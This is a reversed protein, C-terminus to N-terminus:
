AHRASPRMCVCTAFQRLRRLVAAATEPDPFCDEFYKVGEVRGKDPIGTYNTTILVPRFDHLRDDIVAFIAEQARESIKDKGFDEIVLLPANTLRDLFAKAKGAGYADMVEATLRGPRFVLPERDLVNLASYLTRSKGGDPLGYLLLSRRLSAPADEGASALATAWEMARNYGAIDPLRDADTDRYAKPIWDRWNKAKGSRIVKDRAASCAACVISEPATGPAVFGETKCGCVHCIVSQLKLEFRGGFPDAIPKPAVPEDRMVRVRGEGRLDAETPSLFDSPKVSM